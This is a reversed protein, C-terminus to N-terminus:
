GVQQAYLQKYLLSDSILQEHTGQAIIHGDDFVVVRDAQKVASLRHAIIITTRDVLYDALAEHLLMETDGDLASTAEDLIVVSPDILVMRAVALRQRQGGSLKLGFRGVLTDLQEPMKEVTSKLQAIALAHWVQQDSFDRGLTVNERVTDNFLAPAQLVTAVNERVTNFGMNEVPVNNFTVLGKDAPYLGLLVSVLTSKGAGSAGVLAVKEGAKISLSVGDLVKQSDNYQFHLNKIDISAPQQKKFPNQKAPFQPENKMSFLENLRSVAADAAYFAYQINLIEQVPGMMFWLYGFVALMHGLTLDSFVVMLMSLARFIDFGILFVLFSFRGAAENKWTYETAHNRVKRANDIVRALYHQERNAARIQQVADLTETLSQQFVEVATNEQQKLKKIRKGIMVTLYIVIPNLMLVFLALQWHLFMLVTATGIISLIAIIFRSVTSGIFNDLVNIDTVFYSSIGGSGQSEYESMAIRGLRRILRQRIRFTIRKAIITFYRSQVVNLIVAMVRLMMTFFMAALIFLVPGHWSEPTFESIFGVMQAPQNLLVEDVMLPLLLPVPVACVTALFAIFNAKILHSKYILAQKLIGRLQYSDTTQM